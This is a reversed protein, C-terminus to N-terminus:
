EERLLRVIQYIRGMFNHLKQLPAPPTLTSVACFEIERKGVKHIGHIGFRELSRQVM